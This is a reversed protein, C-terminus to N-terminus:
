NISFETISTDKSFRGDATVDRGGVSVFTNILFCLIKAPATAAFWWAAISV